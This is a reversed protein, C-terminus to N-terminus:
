CLLAAFVPRASRVTRHFAVDQGLCSRLAAGQRPAVRNISMDPTRSDGAAASFRRVPRHHARRRPLCTRSAQLPTEPPESATFQRDHSKFSQDLGARPAHPRPGSVAATPPFRSACTCLGHLPASGRGRARLLAKDNGGYQLQRRATTAGRSLEQTARQGAREIM